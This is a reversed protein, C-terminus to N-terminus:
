CVVGQDASGGAPPIPRGGAEQAPGPAGARARRRDPRTTGTNHDQQRTAGNSSEKTLVIYLVHILDGWGRSDFSLLFRPFVLGACCLYIQCPAPAAAGPPNM